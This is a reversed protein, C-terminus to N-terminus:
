RGEPCPGGVLLLLRVQAKNLDRVTQIYQLRAGGLARAAMLVESPSRGKINEKLRSASLEYSREAHRVQEAALALQDRGSEIAGRAETVGLTLKARLDQYSLHVQAAQCDAQRLREKATAAETLNWRLHVGLDLRNDWSLRDGPGAGFAGENVNVELAPLFRGPGQAQARTREILGILGELARVGPGQTLAREVLVEAPQTAEVLDLPVLHTEIPVLVCAPDIGLLYALRAAAADGGERLKRLVVRHGRLEAEVRELEVQLGKDLRALTQAQELLAVLQGEVELALVESARAALFDLYTNAADLVNESTLKSLEGKQQWVKREADVRQAAAERPDLRGRLELGAWLTGFSSHLLNGQFDQIGGEHRYYSPGVSVQPLWAKDAIDRGALAEGLRARAIRVQTNQDEALRFATDLGIPVLRPPPPPVPPLLQPPPVPEAAQASARAVAPAGAAPALAPRDAACGALVGALVAALLAAGLATLRGRWNQATTRM